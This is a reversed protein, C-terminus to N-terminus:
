RARAAKLYDNMEKEWAAMKQDFLPGRHADIYDNGKESLATWTYSIEAVSEDPRSTPALSVVLLTAKVGPTVQVYEVHQRAEDFATLVWVTESGDRFTTFVAGREDRGAAPHLFRPEWGEAWKKEGWPGLLPFVERPPASLHQTYTRTLHAPVFPSAAPPALTVVQLLLVLPSM